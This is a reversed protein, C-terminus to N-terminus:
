KRWAARATESITKAKKKGGYLFYSFQANEQDDQNDGALTSSEDLLGRL